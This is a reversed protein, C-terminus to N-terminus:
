LPNKISIYMEPIPAGMLDDMRTQGPIQANGMWWDFVEEATRWDTSRLKKARESLMRNFASMYLDKYKPWRAFEKWRSSGAMPCGSCGIRKWGDSYLGCSEVQLVQRLFQWVDQETWDVIPNFLTKSTRYCQEVMRRSVDNDTNMTVGKKETQRFDAGGEELKAILKKGANPLTIEGQNEARNKSEEWRVGTVTLRGVGSKEKLDECCYRALRTPPMLKQPILSWMTIPKGADDHPIERSVSPYKERIFQVLEPPDVSSVSYHADFKVGAMECLHFICQSDKGGSFAVFYGDPPEFEKLRKIAIAIKKDVQAM